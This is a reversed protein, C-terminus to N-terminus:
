TSFSPSPLALWAALMLWRLVWAMEDETRVSNVAVFFLCIGLLIEAFRRIFFSNANSHTMGYVLSFIAM